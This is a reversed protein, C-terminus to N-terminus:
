QVYGWQKLMEKLAPDVQGGEPVLRVWDPYDILCLHPRPTGDPDPPVYQSFATEPM